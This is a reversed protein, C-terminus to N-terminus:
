DDADDLLRRAQARGFVAARYKALADPDGALAKASLGAAAGTANDAMGAAADQLQQRQALNRQRAHEARTVLDLLQRRARHM